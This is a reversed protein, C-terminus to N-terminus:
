KKKGYSNKWLRAIWLYVLVILGILLIIFLTSLFNWYVSIHKLEGLIQPGFPCMPSTLTLIIKVKEELKIDYILGLTWIDIGLEPDTVEKTIEIVPHIKIESELDERSRKTHEEKPVKIEKQPEEKIKKKKFINLVM